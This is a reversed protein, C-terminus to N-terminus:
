SKRDQDTFLHAAAVAGLRPDDDRPRALQEVRRPLGFIREREAPAQAVILGVVVVAVGIRDGEGLIEVAGDALDRRDGVIAFIVAIQIGVVIRGGADEQLGPPLGVM